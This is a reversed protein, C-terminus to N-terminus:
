CIYKSTLQEVILNVMVEETLYKTPRKLLLCTFAHWFNAFIKWVWQSIIFNQFIHPLALDMRPPENGGWAKSIV